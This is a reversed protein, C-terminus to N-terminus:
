ESTKIVQHLAKAMRDVFVEDNSLHMYGMHELMCHFLEHYYRQERREKDLSRLIKIVNKNPDWEGENGEKDVKTVISVKHKEGLLEFKKPIM